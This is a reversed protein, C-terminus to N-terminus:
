KEKELVLNLSQRAIKKLTGSDASTTIIKDLADILLQCKRMLEEEFSEKM